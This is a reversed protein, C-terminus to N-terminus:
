GQKGVVLEAMRAELADHDRPRVREARRVEDVFKAIELLSKTFWDNRDLNQAKDALSEMEELLRDITADRTFGPDRRWAAPFHRQDVLSQAARRLLDRPGDVRYRGWQPERKWRRLIRRVGPGANELQGEFWSGFASDFLRRAADGAAVEFQPDVGAEVPRERLLDACFSHITGIRAEELKPLADVLRQRLAPPRDPDLRAQEIGVRLRLKLEGAAAETFTVAVLRDLTTHGTELMAVIRRVLESTKGTGAAAEVVITDDLATLIIDRESQDALLPAHVKTTM